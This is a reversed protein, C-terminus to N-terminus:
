RENRRADVDVPEDRARLLVVDLFLQDLVGAVRHRAGREARRGEEDAVLNEKALVAQAIDLFLDDRLQIDILALGRLPRNAANWRSSLLSTRSTDNSVVSRCSAAAM